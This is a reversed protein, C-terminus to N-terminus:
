HRFWSEDGTIIDCLLWAGQHVKAFNKKCIRVREARELDNLDKCVYRATIKRVKLHDSITRQVTGYSLNTQEHIGDIPMYPDDDIRLRVQVINEITTEAFPRAARAKNETKERGDRFLKSWGEITSLVPTEEGYVSRLEDHIVSEPTNLATRVKIYFRFNETTM